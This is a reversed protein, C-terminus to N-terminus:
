RIKKVQNLQENNLLHLKNGAIAGIECGSEKKEVCWELIFLSLNILDEPNDLGLKASLWNLKEPDCFIQGLNVAGAPM